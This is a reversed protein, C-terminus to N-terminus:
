HRRPDPHKFNLVPILRQEQRVLDRQARMVQRIDRYAAPAEDCLDELRAPDHHVPGLQRRLDAPKIRQCAETRSLVRGAGHSSSCLSEGVGMGRVLYSPSGMSGAILGREGLGASNVSKRHVILEVGNIRERRLFNHPCDLYADEDAAAGCVAQLIDVVRAMIALRNLRAYHVAWEMDNLCAQGQPTRSDLHRLGTRSVACGALHFRSIAQGMARSGSHVMLWLMGADDRQLEVFHNGCGLSGFQWLGDRQSERALMAHSLSQHALSDPWSPAKAHKIAPIERQLLRIIRGAVVPNQVVEAPCEFRISSLGCGIDAGVAEPYVLDSTAAVCGNNVTRGLHVDPLLVVGRVDDSGALKRANSGVEPSVRPEVLWQRIPASDFSPTLNM